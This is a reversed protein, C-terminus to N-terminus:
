AFRFRNAIEAMQEATPMYVRIEREWTGLGNVDLRLRVPLRNAVPKDSLLEVTHVRTVCPLPTYHRGMVTDEYPISAQRIVDLRFLLDLWPSGSYSQFYEFFRMGFRRHFPSERRQMSLVEQVRQPFYDPGSVRAINGNADLFLDNSEANTAFSSGIKSVDIRPFIPAVPCRLVYGDADKTLSPAQTVVRGDGLENCLVYKDYPQANSFSGIFTAIQHPDGALFHSLKFAWAESAIEAITATVIIAPGLAVLGTVLAASSGLRLITAVFTQRPLAFIPPL